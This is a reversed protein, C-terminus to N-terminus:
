ESDKIYVGKFWDCRECFIYCLDKIYIGEGRMLDSFYISESKHLSSLNLKSYINRKLKTNNVCKYDLEYNKNYKVNMEIGSIIFKKINKLIKSNVMSTHTNEIISEEDYSNYKKL